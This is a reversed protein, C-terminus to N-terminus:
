AFQHLKVQPMFTWLVVRVAFEGHDYVTDVLHYGAQILRKKQQELEFKQGVHIDFHEGLVWSTPAVSRQTSASILLVGTQPM